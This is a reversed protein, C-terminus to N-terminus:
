LSWYKKIGQDEVEKKDLIHKIDVILLKDSNMLKLFDDVNMDVFQKHAVAIVVADLNALDEWECLKIGYEEQVEEKNAYPDYVLPNLGLDKLGRYLNAVKSNRIDSINEKFTVGLIWVRTNKKSYPVKIKCLEEDIQGAIYRGMSDNIERGALIVKPNYSLQQAKYTLYYPDVGICHGGVLGPRFNLFNWKTGAAQLVDLTNIDLKHFIIALENILAINLDRQTNEIVKAAEAVKISTAKFVQTISGYVQAILETSDKDMGSVVKIVKDIGHEKDGPNVREPSYGIKFDVGAKLGSEKELIPLCVEETAGPYVTSEYVVVSDNVLNQGVTASAKELLTLDPINDEKVPTPVAVIIFKAEKISYSDSSYEIKASKLDSSEVEDTRDIAQKLEKIRNESVDFGIVSFNKSLLVALPLGVYGLGVVCIKEQKSKLSEFDTM